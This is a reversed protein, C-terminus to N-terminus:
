VRITQYFLRSICIKFQLIIKVQDIM